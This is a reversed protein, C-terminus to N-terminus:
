DNSSSENRGRISCIIYRYASPKIISSLVVYILIGVVIQGLMIYHNDSINGMGWVALMMLISMCYITVTNPSSSPVPLVNM